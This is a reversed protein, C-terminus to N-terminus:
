GIARPGREGTWITVAEHLETVFIRGWGGAAKAGSSIADIATEVQEDNVAVEVRVRRFLSVERAVGRYMQQESKPATGLVSTATLHQIQVDFLAQKVSPLQESRILATIMKM